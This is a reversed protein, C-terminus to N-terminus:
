SSTPRPFAHIIVLSDVQAPDDKDAQEEAHERIVEVLRNYLRELGDPTTRIPYDGSNGGHHWARGRRRREERHQRVLLEWVNLAANEFNDLAEAGGYQSKIDDSWRTSDSKAKWWRERARGLDPVEEILAYKALERLHFSTQGTDTGLRKALVTSNAPGDLRLSGLIRLRLPHALIRMSSVDNLWLEKPAVQQLM